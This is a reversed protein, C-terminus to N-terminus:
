CVNDYNKFCRSTIQETCTYRLLYPKIESKLQLLLLSFLKIRFLASATLERRFSVSVFPNLLFELLDNEKAVKVFWDESPIPWYGLKSCCIKKRQQTQFLKKSFSKYRFYAQAPSSTAWYNLKELLTDALPSCNLQTM